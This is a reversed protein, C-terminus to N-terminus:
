AVSLSGTHTDGGRERRRQSAGESSSASERKNINVELNFAPSSTLRVRVQPEQQIKM